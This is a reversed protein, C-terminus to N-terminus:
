SDDENPTCVHEMSEHCNPCDFLFRSLKASIYTTPMRVTIEAKVTLETVDAEFSFSTPHRSAVGDVLIVTNRTTGDSTVQVETM